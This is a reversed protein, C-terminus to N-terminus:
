TGGTHARSNSRKRDNVQIPDQEREVLPWRMAGGCGAHNGEGEKERNDPHPIYLSAYLLLLKWGTCCLVSVTM